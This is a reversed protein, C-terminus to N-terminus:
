RFSWNEVKGCFSMVSIPAMLSFWLFFIITANAHPFFVTYIIDQYYDLLEFTLVLKYFLFDFKDYYDNYQSALILCYLFAGVGIVMIIVLFNM